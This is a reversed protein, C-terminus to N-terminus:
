SGAAKVGRFSVTIGRLIFNIKTGLCWAMVVYLAVHFCADANSLSSHDSEHELRKVVPPFIRMVRRVLSHTPELAPRSTTGFIFIRAGLLFRVRDTLVCM